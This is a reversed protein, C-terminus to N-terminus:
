KLLPDVTFKNQHYSWVLQYKHSTTEGYITLNPDKM